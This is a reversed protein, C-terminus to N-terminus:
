IVEEAPAALGMLQQFAEFGGPESILKRMMDLLLALDISSDTAPEVGSAVPFLDHANVELGAALKKLSEVTPNDQQGKRLRIIYNDTLGSRRSLEKPTLRKQRMLRDLYQALREM